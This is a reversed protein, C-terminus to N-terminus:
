LPLHEPKCAWVRKRMLLRWRSRSRLFVAKPPVDPAAESTMLVPPHEMMAFAAIDGDLAEAEARTCPLTVKWSQVAPSAVDNM